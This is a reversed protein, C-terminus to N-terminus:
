PPAPAVQTRGGTYRIVNPPLRGGSLCAYLVVGQSFIDSRVDHEREPAMFGPVGRRPAIPNEPSLQFAVGFDLLKVAHKELFINNPHIDGHAIGWERFAYDMAEGVAIAIEVARRWALPGRRLRDHLTEGELFECVLYPWGEYRGGELMRVIGPHTLKALLDAESFREDYEYYIKIAVCLDHSQNHRALYVRGFGGRGICLTIIYNGVCTGPALRPPCDSANMEHDAPSRPPGSDSATM